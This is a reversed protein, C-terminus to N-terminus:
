RAIRSIKSGEMTLNHILGANSFIFGVVPDAINRTNIRSGTSPRLLAVSGDVGVEWARGDRFEQLVKENMFLIVEAKFDAGLGPGFSAGATAYYAVPEGGVLLSGEGYQGGVGFGMKVVDPFVLVGAAKDMLEAANKSHDRLKVLAERASNDIRVKSDAQVAGALALLLLAVIVRLPTKRQCNSM